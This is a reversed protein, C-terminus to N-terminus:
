MKLDDEQFLSKGLRAEAMISDEDNFLDEANANDTPKDLIILQSFSTLRNV